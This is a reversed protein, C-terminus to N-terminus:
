VRPGILCERLYRTLDPGKGEQSPTTKSEHNPQATISKALDKAVVKTLYSMIEKNNKSPHLAIAKMVEYAANPKDANMLCCSKVYAEGQSTENSKCM